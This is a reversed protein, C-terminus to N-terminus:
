APGTSAARVATRLRLQRRVAEVHAPPPASRRLENVWSVSVGLLSAIEGSALDRAVHVAAWRARAVSVTRGRLSSLAFAATAADALLEFDIPGTTVDAGAIAALSAADFRPALAQIARGLQGEDAVRLGLLEHLSSGEFYPDLGRAHKAPQGVVYSVANTLHHMDEIARLRTPAFSVRGLSLVRHLGLKIRRALEIARSPTAAILLHVHTDAIGFALLGLDGAGVSVISRVAARREAITRALNWDQAMRLTLHQVSARGSGPEVFVPARPGSRFREVGPEPM